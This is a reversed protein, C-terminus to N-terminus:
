GDHTLRVMTQKRGTSSQITWMVREPDGLDTWGLGQAPFVALNGPCAVLVERSFNSVHTKAYLRDLQVNGDGLQAGDWLDDFSKLLNPLSSRVMGLFATLRGIMIFSNWVGGTKILDRAKNKSPKEWFRCVEFAQCGGRPLLPKGPEIWGYDVEPSDPTIGLLFVREGYVEAYQYAQDVIAAFQADSNFHHDSPFFGIVGRPAVAQLCTLSYVIAPATGRNSPQVLLNADSISDLRGAYYREHARTVVVLTRGKPVIASIRRQTQALLTENGTLACFQKPTDEGTLVRTFPLLRVGDGGALIVAWRNSDELALKGQERRRPLPSSALAYELQPCCEPVISLRKAAM